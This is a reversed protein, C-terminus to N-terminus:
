LSIYAITAKNEFLVKSVYLNNSHVNSRERHKLVPINVNRIFIIMSYIQDFNGADNYLSLTNTHSTNIISLTHYLFLILYYLMKLQINLKSNGMIM